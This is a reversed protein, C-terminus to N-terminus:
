KKKKSAEKKMKKFEEFEKLEEDSIKKTINKSSIIYIFICIILITLMMVIFGAPKQIFLILSGVHPIKSRYIGEISDPCVVSDDKTNNNDGKTIFCTENEVKTKEIIRHTTVYNDDNRFAIIDKVKLEAPDINKVIVLDGINIKTEMSGSLVVFIKHGFIKPVKDPKTKAQILTNINLLLVIILLFIVFGKLIRLVINKKKM